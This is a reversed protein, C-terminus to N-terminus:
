AIAARAPERRGDQDQAEDHDTEQATSPTNFPDPLPADDGGFTEVVLRSMGIIEHLTVRVAEREPAALVRRATALPDTDAGAALLGRRELIRLTAVATDTTVRFAADDQRLAEARAVGHEVTARDRLGSLRGLTALSLPTLEAAIWWAAWRAQALVASRRDSLIAPVSCGSIASVALLVMDFTVHRESM